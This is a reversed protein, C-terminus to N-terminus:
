EGYLIKEATRRFVEPRDLAGSDLREKVDALADAREPDEARAKEVLRDLEKAQRSFERSISVEDSFGGPREPSVAGERAKRAKGERGPPLNGPGRIEPVNM